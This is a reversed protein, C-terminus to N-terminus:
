SNSVKFRGVAKQLEDAMKALSQSSAAIEEMAASQEETAASVTQTQDVAERSIADIGRVSSVIQESGSAMQEIESSIEQVQQSINNIHKVVDGFAKGASNVVESGLRVQSTGEQMASIASDTDGRVEGILEAIQKAAEQSQEALKRVEEAVVAFGRGLEGARAAEIAANLALLNTQGAIGSITDVIQGIEQSRQGLKSVVDASYIVAKEINAMQSMATNISEGGQNAATATSGAANAVDNTKKAVQQIGTSMQEVVVVTQNVADLQNQTGQAVDTITSAVQNAAQASQEASATLQQSSAAVQESSERIQKSIDRISNQMGTLAHTLQNVELAGSVEINQTLDGDAMKEAAAALSQLPSAIGRAIRFATAAALLIALLILGGMVGVSKMTHSRVESTPRYTIVGWNLKEIPAYVILSDQGTTSVGDVSGTAGGTVKAIYDINGINEKKLVREKDPHAILNGAKDVVEVYGAQGIKTRETMDWLSKLSIDAAFVGVIQGTQNKIPTSITLTPSNTFASVYTDTFFTKGLMAEKFYERDARNALTGSTRAVQMGTADMVYLLEYQPNEKQIALIMSKIAAGDLSQVTPTGATAVVLGQADSLFRAIESGVLHAITLDTETIATVASTSNMYTGAVGVLCAPILAFLVFLVVFRSKLSTTANMMSAKGSM